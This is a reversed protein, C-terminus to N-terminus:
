NTYIEVENKVLTYKSKKKKKVQETVEKVGDVVDEGFEGDVADGDTEKFTYSLKVLTTSIM